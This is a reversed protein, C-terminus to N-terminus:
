ILKTSLVRPDLRLNNFKSFGPNPIARAETLVDNLEIEREFGRLLGTLPEKGGRM